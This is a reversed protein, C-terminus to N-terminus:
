PLVGDVFAAYTAHGATSPHVSDDLGAGTLISSGDVLTAWPRTSCATTIVARYAALNSGFLNLSAEDTRFIPTQAYIPLSPLAAHVGDLVAAYAVGFDVASWKSNGYDNTGIALWLAGPAYSVLRAIFAALLPATNCDEHLSRFGWTELVTKHGYGRLLVGYGEIEPSAANAGATISDGYIVVPSSNDPTAFTINGRIEEITVGRVLGTSSPRSQLSSTLEVTKSVGPSGLTLTFTEYGTDPFDLSAQQVGNVRVGISTFAAFSSFLENDNAVIDISSDTTTFTVTSCCNIRMSNVNDRKNHGFNLRTLTPVAAQGHAALAHALINAESLDSYIAFHQIKAQAFLSSANRAFLYLTRNPTFADTNEVDVQATLGGVLIGDIYMALRDPNVTKDLVWAVHHWGMAQKPMTIVGNSAVTGGRMAVTVSAASDSCNFFWGNANSNTNSSSEFLLGDASLTPDINTIAEIVLKSTGSLALVAATQGRSTTGNASLCTGDIYGAAGSTVATLTINVGGVAAVAAPAAAAEDMPWYYLLNATAQVVDSYPAPVDGGGGLVGMMSLSLSLGSM